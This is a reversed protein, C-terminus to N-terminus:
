QKINGPFRLIRREMLVPFKLSLVQELLQRHQITDTRIVVEVLDLNPLRLFSKEVDDANKEELYNIFGSHGHRCM